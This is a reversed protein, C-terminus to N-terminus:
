DNEYALGGFLMSLSFMILLIFVRCPETWKSIDFSVEYFCGGLYCLIVVLMSVIIAKKM